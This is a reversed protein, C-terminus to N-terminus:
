TGCNHYPVYISINEKVTYLLLKAPACVAYQVESILYLPSSFLMSNGFTQLICTNTIATHMEVACIQLVLNFQISNIIGTYVYPCPQVFPLGIIISWLVYMCISYTCVYMHVYLTIFSLHFQM